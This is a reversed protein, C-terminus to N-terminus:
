VDKLLDEPTCDLAECMAKLTTPRPQSKGKRIKVMSTESIGIAAALAKGTMLNRSIQYELKNTDLM